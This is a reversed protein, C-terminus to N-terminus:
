GTRAPWRSLRAPAFEAEPSPFALEGTAEDLQRYTLRRGAARIAIREPFKTAVRGFLAPVSDISM